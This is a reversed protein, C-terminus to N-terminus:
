QSTKPKVSGSWQKYDERARKLRQDIMDLEVKPTAVGRKSKKQFAHLMYVIGAFGVTYVARYTNGDFDDVVELVAQHLGNPGRIGGEGRIRCQGDLDTLRDQTPELALRLWFAQRQNITEQCLAQGFATNHIHEGIRFV